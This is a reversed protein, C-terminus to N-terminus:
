QVVQFTFRGKQEYYINSVTPYDLSVAYCNKKFLEFDNNGDNITFYIGKYVPIRQRGDATKGLNVANKLNLEPPDLPAISFVGKVTPVFGIKLFYNNEKQEFQFSYFTEGPFTITGNEVLSIFSRTAGPQQSLPQQGDILKHIGISSGFTFNEFKFRENSNYELISDQFAASLWLTDGLKITSNEPAVLMPIVFTMEVFEPYKEKDCQFNITSVFLLVIMSTLYSQVKVKQFRNIVQEM